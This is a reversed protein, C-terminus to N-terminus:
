GPLSTSLLLGCLPCLGVNCHTSWTFLVEKKNNNKPNKLIKRKCKLRKHPSSIHMEHIYLLFKIFIFVHLSIFCKVSSFLMKSESSFFINCSSSSSKTYTLYICIPLVYVQLKASTLHMECSTYILSWDSFHFQVPNCKNLAQM